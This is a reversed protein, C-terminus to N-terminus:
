DTADQLAASLAGALESLPGRFFSRQGDLKWRALARKGITGAQVYNVVPVAYVVAYFGIQPTVTRQFNNWEKIVVDPLKVSASVRYTSARYAMDADVNFRYNPQPVTNCKM